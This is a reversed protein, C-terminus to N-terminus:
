GLKGTKAAKNVGTQTPLIPPKLSAYFKVADLQGDEAAQDVDSVSVVKHVYLDRPSGYGELDSPQVNHHSELMTLFIENNLDYLNKNTLLCQQLDQKQLRSGINALLHRDLM